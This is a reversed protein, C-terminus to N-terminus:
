RQRTVGSTSRHDTMLASVPFMEVPLTYWHRRVCVVKVHEVPEPAGDLTFRDTIEAPLGCTPCGVLAGPELKSNGPKENKM